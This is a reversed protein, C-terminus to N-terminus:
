LGEARAALPVSDVAGRQLHFSLELGALWAKEAPPFVRDTTLPRHDAGGGVGGAKARFVPSPTRPEPNSMPSAAPERADQPMQGSVVPWQGREERTDHDAAGSVWVPRAPDLLVTVAASAGAWPRECLVLAVAGAREVARALRLRLPGPRKATAPPEGEDRHLNSGDGLDVVVVAFGGTELVVEAVRVAEGATRPRVWLLRDLCVGIAAASAPDFADAGDIWAAVEGQATAAALTVMALGTRGCSFTGVLECVRGQPWGGGLAGDLSSVTSPRRLRARERSAWRSSAERLSALAQGSEEHQGHETAISMMM